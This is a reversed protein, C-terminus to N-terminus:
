RKSDEDHQHSGHGHDHEGSMSKVRYGVPSRELVFQREALGGCPQSLYVLRDWDADMDVSPDYYSYRIMMVEDGDASQDVVRREQITDIKPNPCAGAEETANNAYHRKIVSALEPDDNNVGMGCGALAFAALGALILGFVRVSPTMM